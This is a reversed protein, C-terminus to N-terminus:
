KLFRILEKITSLALEGDVQVSGHMSTKTSVVIVSIVFHITLEGHPDRVINLQCDETFNVQVEKLQHDAFEELKNITAEGGAFLVGNNEGRFTGRREDLEAIFHFYPYEGDIHPIIELYDSETGIRM